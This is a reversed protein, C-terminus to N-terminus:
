CNTSLKAVSRVGASNLYDDNAYFLRARDPDVGYEQLIKFTIAHDADIIVNGVDFLFIQPMSKLLPVMRGNYSM